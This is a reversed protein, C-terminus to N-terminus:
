SSLWSSLHLTIATTEVLFGDHGYLSDIAAFTADPIHDALVQLEQLPCLLDSTIGIILTKNRISNLVAEM